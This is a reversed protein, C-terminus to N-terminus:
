TREMLLLTLDDAPPRGDLFRDLGDLLAQTRAEPTVDAPPAMLAEALGEVGFFTDDRRAEIFGDTFLALRAGHPIDARVPAHTADSAVGLPMGSGEVSLAHGRHM